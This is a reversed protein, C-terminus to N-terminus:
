VTVWGYIPGTQVVPMLTMSTAAASLLKTPAGDILQGGGATITVAPNNVNNRIILPKGVNPAGVVPLTVAYADFPAAADALLFDGYTVSTAILTSSVSYEPPGGGGGGGGGSSGAAGDFYLAGTVGAALVRGIIRTNTGPADSILGTNSLYLPDGVLATGVNYPQILGFRRVYVPQDLVMGGGNPAAFAYGLTAVADNASTALATDVSALTEDGPLGPKLVATTIATVITGQIGTSGALLTLVGPDAFSTLARRLVQSAGSVDGAWGAVADNEDEELAAPVREFTKLDRVAAVARDTLESPGANVVVQILYTGEKQPTFTPNVITTSSLADAAGPPQSVITWLYTSEGGTGNNNLQVLVNIPLDDDSGDVGNIQILAQPM